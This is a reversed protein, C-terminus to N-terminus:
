PSSHATCFLVHIMNKETNRLRLEAVRRAKLALLISTVREPTALIRRIQGIRLDM